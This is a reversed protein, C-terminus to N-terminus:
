KIMEDFFLEPFSTFTDDILKPPSTIYFDPIQNVIFHNHHENPTDINKNFYVCDGYTYDPMCGICCKKSIEMYEETDYEYTSYSWICFNM